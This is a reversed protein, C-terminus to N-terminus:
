KEAAESSRKREERRKEDRRKEGDMSQGKSLRRQAAKARIIQAAGGGGGDGDLWRWVALGGSRWGLGPRAEAWKWAEV